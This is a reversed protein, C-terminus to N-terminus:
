FLPMTPTIRITESFIERKRHKKKYKDNEKKSTTLREPAAYAAAAAGGAGWVSVGCSAKARTRASASRPSARAM